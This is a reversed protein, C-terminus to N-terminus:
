EAVFVSERKVHQKKLFNRLSAAVAKAHEFRFFSGLLYDESLEIGIWRRKLKEAIYGVVNSGAFPDLVIDNRATLFNIFFEPVFEVFRAPHVPLRLERCSELYSDFSKTNSASLLNTINLLNPPIAGKNNTSWKESINHESPRLGPNYGNKLLKLMSKKYPTLVRRNSAKPYAGKSLWWIPNVADKVRIRLITVWEAPSPTPNLFGSGGCGM